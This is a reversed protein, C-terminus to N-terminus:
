SENKNLPLNFYFVSGKNKISEAWIKGKHSNIIRKVIALGIGTGDFEKESHLRHFVNFIKNAYKMDFGIGNDKVYYVIEEGNKKDCGIEIIITDNNKSFKIANGILNIFVQKILNRDCSIPHLDKVIWKIENDINDNNFGIRIEDILDNFNTNIYRLKSRSIRSLNLLDEILNKMYDISDLINDLYKSANSNLKNGSEKKLLESFASIHRLPVRLDHSVSYVFSELEENVIELQETKNKLFMQAKKIESIDRCVLIVGRIEENYKIISLSLSVPIKKNNKNKLFTEFNNIINNKNLKNNILNEVKHYENKDFIIYISKDILEVEKYGLLDLSAFNAVIINKDTNILFLADPITKVINEAIIAPNIVFLDYKLIAYGILISAFLSGFVDWEALDLKFYVPLIGRFLQSLITPILFGIFIVGSQIRERKNKRTFHYHLILINTLIIFFIAWISMIYKVPLYKLIYYIWYAAENYFKIFTLIIMLLYIIISFFSIIFIIFKNEYINKKGTYILIFFLQMSLIFPWVMSLIAWIFLQDKNIVTIGAFTSLTQISCLIIFFLFFKNILRKPNKFYVFIGIFVSLGFTFLLLISFILM